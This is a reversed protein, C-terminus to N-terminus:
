VWTRRRSIWSEIRRSRRRCRRGHHRGTAPLDVYRQRAAESAEKLFTKFRAPDTREVMRFRTENRMYEAVRPKRRGTTSSCRRSARPRAARTSATSRGSARNSRWSRSSRATRWTTATRSATATPSSSRRGPYSEAELFAKVTQRRKAGFAVRAVYVHGYSMAM